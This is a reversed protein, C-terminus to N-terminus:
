EYDKEIERHPADSGCISCLADPCERECEHEKQEPCDEHEISRIWITLEYGTRGFPKYYSDEKLEAMPTLKVDNTTDFWLDFNQDTIEQDTFKQSCQSCTLDALKLTINTGKIENTAGM